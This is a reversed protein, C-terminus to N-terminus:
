PALCAIILWTKRVFRATEMMKNYYDSYPRGNYFAEIHLKEEIKVLEAKFHKITKLFVNFQEVINTININIYETRYPLDDNIQYLPEPIPLINYVFNPLSSPHAPYINAQGSPHGSSQGVESRSGSSEGHKMGVLFVCQLIFLILNLVQM